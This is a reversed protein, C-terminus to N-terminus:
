SAPSSAEAPLTKFRPLHLQDQQVTLQCSSHCRPCPKTVNLVIPKSKDLSESACAYPFVFNCKWCQLKFTVNQPQKTEPTDKRSARAAGTLLNPFFPFTIRTVSSKKGTVTQGHKHKALYADIEVKFQRYFESPVLFITALVLGQSLTQETLAHAWFIPIFCLGSAILLETLLWLTSSNIFFQLVKSM